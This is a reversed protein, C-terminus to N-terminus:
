EEIVDFVHYTSSYYGSGVKIPRYAVYRYNTMSPTLLEFEDRISTIGEIPVGRKNVTRFIVKEPRGTDKDAFKRGVPLSSSWSNTAPETYTGGRRASLIMDDLRATTVSIGRFKELSPKVFEPRRLLADIAKGMKLYYDNPERGNQANRIASYTIGTFSRIGSFGEKIQDKTLGKLLSDRLRKLASEEEPSSADHRTSSLGVIPKLVKGIFAHSDKVLRSYFGNTKKEKALFDQESNLPSIGLGKGLYTDRLWKSAAKVEADIRKRAKEQSSHLNPHKDPDVAIYAKEFAAKAKLAKKLAKSATSIKDWEPPDKDPVKVGLDRLMKKYELHKNLNNTYTKETGAIAAKKLKRLHEKAKKKLEDVTPEKKKKAKAAPKKAAPKDTDPKAAPTAPPKAAPTAPTKAASAGKPKKPKAASASAGQDIVKATKGLGTSANNNLEKRCTKHINICALGCPKGTKCKDKKGASSM